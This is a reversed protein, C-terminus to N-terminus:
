KRQLVCGMKCPHMRFHQPIVAPDAQKLGDVSHQLCLWEEVFLRELLDAADLVIALTKPNAAPREREDAFQPAFSFTLMDFEM